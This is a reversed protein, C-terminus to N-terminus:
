SFTDFPNLFALACAILFGWAASCAVSPPIVQLARTGKADVVARLPVVAVATTSPQSSTAAAGGSNVQSDDRKRKKPSRPARGTAGPDAATGKRGDLEPQSSIAGALHLCVLLRETQKSAVQFLFNPRMFDKPLGLPLLLPYPCFIVMVEAKPEFRSLLTPSRSPQMLAM